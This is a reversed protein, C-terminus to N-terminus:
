MVTKSLELFQNSIFEMKSIAGNDKVMDLKSLRNMEEAYEKAKYFKMQHMYANVLNYGASAFCEWIVESNPHSRAYAKLEEYYELTYELVIEGHGADQLETTAFFMQLKKTEIVADLGWKEQTYDLLNFVEDYCVPLIDGFNNLATMQAWNGCVSVLALLEECTLFDLYYESKTRYEEIEEDNMDIFNHSVYTMDITLLVSMMYMNPHISYPYEEMKDYEAKMRLAYRFTLLTYEDKEATEMGDLISRDYLFLTSDLEDDVSFPFFANCESLQKIVVSWEEPKEELKVVSENYFDRTWGLTPKYAIHLLAIAKLLHMASSSLGTLKAGGPAPIELM